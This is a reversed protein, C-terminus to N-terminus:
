LSMFVLEFACDQILHVHNNAMGFALKWPHEFGIVIEITLFDGMRVFHPMVVLIGCFYPYIAYFKSVNVWGNIYRLDM